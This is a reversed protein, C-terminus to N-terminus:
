NGVTLTADRIGLQMAPYGPCATARSSFGVMGRSLQGCHPHSRQNGAAPSPLRPIGQSQWLSSRVQACAAPKSCNQACLSSATLVCGVMYPCRRCLACATHVRWGTGGGRVVAVLVGREFHGPITRLQQGGLTGAAIYSRPRKM